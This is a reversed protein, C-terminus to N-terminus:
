TPEDEMRYKGKCRRCELSCNEDCGMDCFYDYHGLVDCLTRYGHGDDEEDFDSEKNGAYWRRDDGVRRLYIDTKVGHRALWLKGTTDRQVSFVHREGPCFFEKEEWVKSM